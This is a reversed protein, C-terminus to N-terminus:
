PLHCSIMFTSTGDRLGEDLVRVRRKGLVGYVKGLMEQECLVELSLMAECIRAFGRRFLCCRCAEKMAVMVQGSMPGYPEASAALAAATPQAPGTSYGGGAGGADETKVVKIGQIVFAVGLMPEECLPGANSALQFGALISPRM